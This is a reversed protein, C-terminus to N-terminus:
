QVNVGFLWGVVEIVGRVSLAIPLGLLLIAFPALLSM